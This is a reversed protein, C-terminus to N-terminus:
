SNDGGTPTLSLEGNASAYIGWADQVASRPLSQISSSLIEVNLGYGKPANAIEQTCEKILVPTSAGPAVETKCYYIGNNEFWGNDPNLTIAYDTGEVPLVPYVEGKENQWTIVITARIFANINGNNKVKVDKKVDNKFSEEITNVATGPTFTNTVTESRSLLYAYTTGISLCVALLLSSLILILKVPKKLRRHKKNQNTM